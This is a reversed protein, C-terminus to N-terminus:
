STSFFTGNNLIKTYFKAKNLSIEVIFNSPLFSIWNTIDARDTKCASSLARIRGSRHSYSFIYFSCLDVCQEFNLTREQSM